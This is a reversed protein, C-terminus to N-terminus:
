GGPQGQRNVQEEEYKRRLAEREEDTIFTTKSERAGPFAYGGSLHGDDRACASAWFAVTGLAAFCLTRLAARRGQSGTPGGALCKM